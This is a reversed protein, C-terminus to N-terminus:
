RNAVRREAKNPSHHKIWPRRLDVEAIADAYAEAAQRVNRRHVQRNHEMTQKVKKKWSGAGDHPNILSSREMNRLVERQADADLDRFPYLGTVPDADLPKGTKPDKKWGLFQSVPVGAVSPTIFEWRSVADNWRVDYETGFRRKLEARFEAPPQRTEAPM